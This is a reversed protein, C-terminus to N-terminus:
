YGRKGLFKISQFPYGCVSPGGLSNNRSIELHCPIFGTSIGIYFRSAEGWKTVVEVREGEKGIFEPILESKSKWGTELHKKRAINIIRMYENYATISGRRVNKPSLNLETALKLLRNICVDFGLCSYGNRGSPIVYLQQEKNSKIDM